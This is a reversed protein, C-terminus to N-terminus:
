ANMAFFFAVNSINMPVISLLGLVQIAIHVAKSKHEQYQELRLKM